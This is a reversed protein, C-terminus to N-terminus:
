KTKRQNKRRERRREKGTKYESNDLIAMDLMPEIKYKLNSHVHWISEELTGNKTENKDVLIIGREKKAMIIEAITARKIANAGIIGLKM